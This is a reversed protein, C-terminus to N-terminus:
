INTYKGTVDNVGCFIMYLIMNLGYVFLLIVIVENYNYANSLQSAVIPGIAYGVARSTTFLGSSKNLM